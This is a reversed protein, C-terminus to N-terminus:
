LSEALTLFIITALLGVLYFSALFYINEKDKKIFRKIQGM